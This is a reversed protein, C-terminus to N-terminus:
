EDYGDNSGSLYGEDDILGHNDGYEGPVVDGDGDHYYSSPVPCNDDKNARSAEKEEVISDAVELDSHGYGAYYPNRQRNSCGSLMIWAALMVVSSFVFKKM